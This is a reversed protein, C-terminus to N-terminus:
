TIPPLHVPLHYTTPPLHCTILLYCTSSPLCAPPSDDLVYSPLEVVSGDEMTVKETPSSRPKAFQGAMRGIKIVPKGSGYTIVLAMQLIVRMTDRIHDTSFEDFSEACDGGMLLFGNGKQAQNTTQHLQHIADHAFSYILM